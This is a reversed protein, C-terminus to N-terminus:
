GFGMRERERESGEDKRREETKEGGVFCQGMRGEAGRRYIKGNRVRGRVHCGIKRGSIRRGKREETVGM